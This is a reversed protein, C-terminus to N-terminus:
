YSLYHLFNWIIEQSFNQSRWDRCIDVKSPPLYGDSIFFFTNALTTKTLDVSAVGFTCCLQLRSDRDMCDLGAQISDMSLVRLPQSATAAAMMCVSSPLVQSRCSKQWFSILGDPCSIIASLFDPYLVLQFIPFQTFLFFIKLGPATRSLTM